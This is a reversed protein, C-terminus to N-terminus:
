YSALTVPSDYPWLIDEMLEVVVRDASGSALVALDITQSSPIPASNTLVGLAFGALAAAAPLPVLYRLWEPGFWSRRAAPFPLTRLREMFAPDAEPLAVSMLLENFRADM